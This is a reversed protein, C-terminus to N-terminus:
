IPAAEAVATVAGPVLASCRNAVVVAETVAAQSLPVFDPQAVRVVDSVFATLPPSTRLLAVAVQL